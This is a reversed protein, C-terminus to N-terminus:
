GYGRGSMEVRFRDRGVVAAASIRSTPRLFFFEDRVFNQNQFIPDPQFSRRPKDDWTKTERERENVCVCVSVYVDVCVCVCVCLCRCVCVCVCVCVVHGEKENVEVTGSSPERNPETM